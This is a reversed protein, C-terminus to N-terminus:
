QLSRPIVFEKGDENWADFARRLDLVASLCEVDVECLLERAYFNCDEVDIILEAEHSIFDFDVRWAVLANSFKATGNFLDLEFFLKQKTM